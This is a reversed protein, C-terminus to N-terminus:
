NRSGPEELQGRIAGNAFKDNHVNVYFRQPNNAIRRALASDVDNVCGKVSSLTDPLPETQTVFLAVVVDGANGRTGEHIHAATPPLIDAWSLNFCVRGARADVRIVAKGSGDNDGPTPTEQGGTMSAVVKTEAAGVNAVILAAAGIAVAVAVIARSRLVARERGQTM